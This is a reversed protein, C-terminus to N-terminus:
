LDQVNFGAAIVIVCIEGPLEDNVATGVVVLDCQAASNVVDTADRVQSLTLSSSGTINVIIGSAKSIPYELLPSSIAERAAVAADGASSRGIGILGFGSDKLISSV